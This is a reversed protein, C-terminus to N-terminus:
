LSITVEVNVIHLFAEHVDATLSTASHTTGVVIVPFDPYEEKLQTICAKFSSAVRPDSVLSAM